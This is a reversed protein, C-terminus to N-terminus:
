SGVSSTTVARAPVGSASRSASSAACPWHRGNSGGCKPAPSRGDAAHDGGPEGPRRARARRSPARGRARRWAASRCAALQQVEAALHHLVDGAVVDRAQEGAREAHEAHDDLDRELHQRAGRGLRRQAEVALRGFRERQQLSQPPRGSGSSALAHHFPLRITRRRPARAATASARARREAALRDRGGRRATRPLGARGCRDTRRRRRRRSRAGPRSATAGTAAASRAAARGRRRRASRTARRAASARSRAAPPAPARRPRRPRRGRSRTERARCTPRRTRAASAAAARMWSRSFRENSGLPMKLGAPEVRGTVVITWIAERGSGGPPADTRRAATRGSM